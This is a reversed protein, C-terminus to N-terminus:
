VKRCQELETSIKDVIEQHFRSSRHLEEYLEGWNDCSRIKEIFQEAIKRGAVSESFSLARRENLNRVIFNALIVADEEFEQACYEIAAEYSVGHKEFQYLSQIDSNEDEIILRIRGTLGGRELVKHNQITVNKRAIRIDAEEPLQTLSQPM